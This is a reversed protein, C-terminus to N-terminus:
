ELGERQARADDEVNRRHVEKELQDMWYVGLAVVFNTFAVSFAGMLLAYLGSLAHIGIIIIWVWARAATQRFNPLKKM